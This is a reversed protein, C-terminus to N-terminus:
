FLISSSAPLSVDKAGGEANSVSFKGSPVEANSEIAPILEEENGNVALFLDYTWATILFKVSRHPWIDVEKHM